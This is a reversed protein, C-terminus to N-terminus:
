PDELLIAEKNKSPPSTTENIVVQYSSIDKYRDKPLIIRWTGAKQARPKLGRRAIFTQTAAGILNKDQDHFALSCQGWMPKSGTNTITVHAFITEWGYFEGVRCTWTAKAADGCAKTQVTENTDFISYPLNIDGQVSAAQACLTLLMVVLLEAIIKM